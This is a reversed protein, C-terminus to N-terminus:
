RRRRHPDTGAAPRGARRRGPGARLCPLPRQGTGPPAPGRPRRRRAPAAGPTAVAMLRGPRRWSGGFSALAQAADGPRGQVLRTTAEGLVFFLALPAIWALDFWRYCTLLTRFRHEEALREARRLDAPTTWGSREGRRLAQLHRVKAAPVAVVRAGAVQARWSLDLDEGFQDITANFGGVARFLDARVLTVGGPAVFVERVVDHQEQDLEGPEVLDQIVGVKDATAGVALLRDPRDWEVFKPTAIGANQRYSEEVLARVADPALVVDDHCLVFHSAGEVLKLVENAARGFGVRQSLRSVFAEPLKAAM